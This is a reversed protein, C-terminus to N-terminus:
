TFFFKKKNSYQRPVPYCEVILLKKFCCHHSKKGRLHYLTSYLSMKFLVYQQDDYRRDTKSEYRTILGNLPTEADGKNKM